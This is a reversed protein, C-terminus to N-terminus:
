RLVEVHDYYIPRNAYPAGQVVARLLGPAAPADYTLQAKDPRPHGEQWARAEFKQGDVRLELWVWSNAESTWPTSALVQEKDTTLELVQDKTGPSTRFQWSSEGHFSVSLRPASRRTREGKMRARIGGKGTILQGYRLQGEGMPEANLALVPHGDLETIQFGGAAFEWGPIAAGPKLDQFAVSSWTEASPSLPPTTGPNSNNAGSGFFWWLVGAVALAPGLIPLTSKWGPM